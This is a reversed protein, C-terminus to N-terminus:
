TKSVQRWPAIRAEMSRTGQVLFLAFIVVVTPQAIFYLELREALWDFGHEGTLISGVFMMHGWMFLALILGSGGSVVEYILQRKALNKSDAITM